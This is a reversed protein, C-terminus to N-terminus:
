AEHHITLMLFVGRGSGAPFVPGPDSDRISRRAQTLGSPVAGSCHCPWALTRPAAAAPSTPDVCLCPDEPAQRRGRRRCNASPARATVGVEDGHAEQRSRPTPGVAAQGPAAQSGSRTRLAIRCQGVRVWLELHCCHRRAGAQVRVGSPGQVATLAPGQEAPRLGCTSARSPTLPMAGPVWGHSGGGVPSRPPNTRGVAWPLVQGSRTILVM